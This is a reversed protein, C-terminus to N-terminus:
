SQTEENEKKTDLYEKYASPSVGFLEKFATSFNNPNNFGTLEAIETINQKKQSLLEAAQKLRCNKIFERATQNTLEKLKRNLHVRSTGVENAIMEVTLNPNSLNGNIVKMIRNMLKDNPSEIEMKELKDNHSQQGSFANRLRERSLILNSITKELIKSNFPKTIYADAGRELAEINDEEQVRATLLIIPIHNLNINTKIKRCLTFGDMEPMMIDSIILDPEKHFIEDLAEKGNSCGKIHYKPSLELTLYHRIEENDEVILIHYKSNKSKEENNDEDNIDLYSIPKETKPQVISTTTENIEEPKLHKNSLPMHIIFRCGLGNSNNECAITGHHLEVLSHTLHLGIGTGLNNNNNPVQYFAKFIQEKDKENVGKGTDAVILEMYSTLAGQESTQTIKQLLVEVKGGKPTFKFANSLLNLIIKDFHNPDTWAELTELGDHHFNLQLEQEKAQEEFIECIDNILSVIETKQFTLKMKGQDIKQVDMLQNVLRLIRESNLHISHYLKKRESDNDMSILKQLPNIIFSIPTRIEHSINTFFQLKADKIEEAHIHEQTERKARNSAKVQILIFTIIGTILLIYAIKAWTSAWWVPSIHITAELIDSFVGNDEARVRFHYTGPDMDYFPYRNISNPLYMWEKGNISYLYNLREPANYEFPSFEISFTNDNHALNFEKAEYIPCNIIPKGGSLSGVRVPTNNLFFDTFRINWKKSTSSINQPHFYTIGNVGGFWITGDTDKHTSNKSFENSQLGDGVYYNNFRENTINFQSLGSNTSIWLNGYNDEQIAYVYDSALGNQTSYTMSQRTQPNWATLGDSGGAWICGKSDEYINLIIKRSLVKEIRFKDNLDLVYMGSNTGIYLLNDKSYHLCYIWRNLNLNAEPTYKVRKEKMDYYHLGSGLTAIWLRKNNDEAFDYVSQIKRGRSDLLDEQPICQGNVPNLRGMGGNYSGFWLNKESDEYVKLIIAPITNPKETPAYHKLFRNDKSLRYIGENDTGVWLTGDHSRQISTICSNGIVNNQISKHGIYNFNSSTAPIMAVGKQYIALWQNGAHDKITHHIKLSGPDLNGDFTYDKMEGTRSNYIKVGKGDTCLHINGEEDAYLSRLPIEQNERYPISIFQDKQKDFKLLGKNTSGAYINGQIDKCLSVINAGSEEKNQFLRTQGDPSLRYIGEEGRNIWICNDNDEILHNTMEVPIGVDLKQIIPQGNEIVVSSLRDGTIWVEGNNRELIRQVNSNYPIGEKDIAKPSFTDTAPDYLQLGGYSGIYLNGKSDEFIISIYNHAISQENDPDHKYITFKSGDYRNLGDETAVWIMGQSDEYIHNILSSSLHQDTTFLKYSQGQLTFPIFTLLLIIFHKM